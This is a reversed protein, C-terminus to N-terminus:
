GDRGIVVKPVRFITTVLLCPLYILQILTLWGGKSLYVNRWRDLRKAIKSSVLEWFEAYLPNGGLPLGVCLCSECFM